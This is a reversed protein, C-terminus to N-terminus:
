FPLNENYWQQKKEKQKLETFEEHYRNFLFNQLCELEKLLKWACEADIKEEITLM